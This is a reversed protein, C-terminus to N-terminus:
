LSLWFHTLVVNQDEPVKWFMQDRGRIGYIDRSFLFHTFDAFTM